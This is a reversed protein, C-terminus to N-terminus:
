KDLYLSVTMNSISAYGSILMAQAKLASDDKRDQRVRLVSADSKDIVLYQLPTHTHTRAYPNSQSRGRLQLIECSM